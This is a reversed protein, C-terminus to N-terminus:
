GMLHQFDNFRVIRWLESNYRNQANATAWRDRDVSFEFLATAPVGFGWTRDSGLLAAVLHLLLGGHTVLWIQDDNCHRHLLDEVFRQARDRVIQPPEAQPVPLWEPSAELQACLDGYREQAEAWTLGSFIGNDIEQLAEAIAPQVEDAAGIQALILRATERSRTLPSTYVHSPRQGEQHLRDGLRRAQLIGTESLDYDVRGQIRKEVNGTSQAHRILLIKM